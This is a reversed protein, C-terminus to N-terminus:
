WALWPYTDVWQVCVGVQLDALKGKFYCTQYPREHERKKHGKGSTNAGSRRHALLQIKIPAEREMERCHQRYSVAVDVSIEASCGTGYM